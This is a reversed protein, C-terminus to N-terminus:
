GEFVATKPCKETLIGEGNIAIVESTIGIEESTIGMRESTIAIEESFKRLFPCKKRFREKSLLFLSIYFIEIFPFIDRRYARVYVRSLFKKNKSSRGKM